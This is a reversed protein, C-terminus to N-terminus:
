FTENAVAQSPRIKSSGFSKIYWNVFRYLDEYQQYKDIMFTRQLSLEWIVRDISIQISGIDAGNAIQHDIEHVLTYAALFMGTRGVGARCHIAIMQSDTEQEMVAKVLSYLKQPETGEHNEWCDTFFYNLERGNLHLINKGNTPNIDIRGEWYPFSNERNNSYACTLRVLDTVHYRDLLRYFAPLNAQTPAEMALFHRHDLIIISANYDPTALNYDFACSFAFRSGWSKFSSPIAYLPRYQGVSNPKLRDEPNIFYVSWREAQMQEFRNKLEAETWNPQWLPFTRFDGRFDEWRKALGKEAEEFFPHAAIQSCFLGYCAIVSLISRAM